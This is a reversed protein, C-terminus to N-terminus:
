GIVNHVQARVQSGASQLLVTLALQGGANCVQYRYGAVLGAVGGPDAAM